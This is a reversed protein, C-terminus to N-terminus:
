IKTHSHFALDFQFDEQMCLLWIYPSNPNGERKAKNKTGNAAEVQEKKNQKWRSERETITRFEQM